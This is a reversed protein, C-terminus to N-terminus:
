FIDETSGTSVGNKVKFSETVLLQLNKQYITVLEDKILLEDFSLYPIDDYVLQLAREHIKNVRNETNRSHFMWVLPSYSFKSIIFVKMFMRQKNQVM